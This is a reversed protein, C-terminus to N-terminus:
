KKRSRLIKAASSPVQEYSLHIMRQHEALAGTAADSLEILDLLFLDGERMSLKKALAVYGPSESLSKFGRLYPGGEHKVLSEVISDSLGNLGCLYLKGEHKALSAVSEASNSTIGDLKSSGNHKM